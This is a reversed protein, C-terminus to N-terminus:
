WSQVRYVQVPEPGPHGVYRKGDTLPLALEVEGDKWSKQGSRGFSAANCSDPHSVVRREPSSHRSLPLSLQDVCCLGLIIEAGQVFGPEADRLIFHDSDLPEAKCCDVFVDFRLGIEADHVGVAFAHRLIEGLGPVPKLARRITALGFCQAIETDKICGASAHRLVKLFRRFPVIEGGPV